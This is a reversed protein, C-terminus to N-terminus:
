RLCKLFLVGIFLAFLIILNGAEAMLWGVLGGVIVLLVIQWVSLSNSDKEKQKKAEASATEEERVKRWYERRGNLFRESAESRSDM